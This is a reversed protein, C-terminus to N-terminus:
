LPTRFPKYLLEKTMLFLVFGDGQPKETVCLELSMSQILFCSSITEPCLSRRLSLRRSLDWFVCRVITPLFTKRVTSRVSHTWLALWQQTWPGLIVYEATFIRYGNFSLLTRNAPSM